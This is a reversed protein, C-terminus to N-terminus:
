NGDIKVKCITKSKSDFKLFPDKGSAIFGLAHTSTDYAEEFSSYPGPLVLALQFLQEADMSEVEFTDLIMGFYVGALLMKRKYQKYEKKTM